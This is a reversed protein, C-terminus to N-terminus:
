RRQRRVLQGFTTVELDVGRLAPVIVKGMKYHMELGLTKLVTAKSEHRNSSREQSSLGTSHVFVPQLRTSVLVDKSM